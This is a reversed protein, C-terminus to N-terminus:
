FGRPKRVSFGASFGIIVVGSIIVLIHYTFLLPNSLVQFTGKLELDSNGTNQIEITHRASKQVSWDLITEKKFDDDISFSNDSTQVLIHFSNGTVKLIERSNQPAEFQFSTSEGVVLIEDVPITQLGLASVLSFMGIASIAIGAGIGIVTRKTLV